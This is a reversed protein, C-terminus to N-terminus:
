EVEFIIRAFRLIQDILVWLDYGREQEFDACPVGFRNGLEVLGDVEAGVGAVEPAGPHRPQVHQRHGRGGRGLLGGCGWCAATGCGASTNQYCNDVGRQYKTEPSVYRSRGTRSFQRTARTTFGRTKTTPTSWTWASPRTPSGPLFGRIRFFFDTM